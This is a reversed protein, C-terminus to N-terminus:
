FLLTNELYNSNKVLYGIFFSGVDQKLTAMAAQLIQYKWNLWSLIMWYLATLFDSLDDIIKERTM